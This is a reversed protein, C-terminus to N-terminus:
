PAAEAAERELRALHERRRGDDAARADAIADAIAAATTDLRSAEARLNAAIDGASDAFAIRSEGQWQGLSGCAAGSLLSAAHELVGAAEDCASIAARAAGEDFDVYQM